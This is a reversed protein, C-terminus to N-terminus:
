KLLSLSKEEKKVVPIKQVDLPTFGFKAGFKEIVKTANDLVFLWKSTVDYVQGHTGTETTVFGGGDAAAALLKEEAEEAQLVAFCYRRLAPLFARTLYGAKNLDHCRENWINQIRPPWEKPAAPMREGDWADYEVPDFNERSPEFTGQAIKTKEPIPRM